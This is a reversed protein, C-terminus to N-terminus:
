KTFNKPFLFNILGGTQDPTASGSETAPANQSLNRLNVGGDQFQLIASATAAAAAATNNNTTNTENNNGNNSAATADARRGGGM